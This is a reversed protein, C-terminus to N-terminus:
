ATINDVRKNREISGFLIISSDEYDLCGWDDVGRNVKYGEVYGGTDVYLIWSGTAYAGCLHTEV